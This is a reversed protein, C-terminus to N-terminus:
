QRRPAAVAARAQPEVDAEHPQGEQLKEGEPQAVVGSHDAVGDEDGAVRIEVAREEGAARLDGARDLDATQRQRLHDGVDGHRPNAAAEGEVVDVAREGVLDLAALDGHLQDFREMDLRDHHELRHALRREADQQERQRDHRDDDRDEM